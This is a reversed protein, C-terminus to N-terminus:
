IEEYQFCKVNKDDKTYLSDIIKEFHKTIRLKKKFTDFCSM